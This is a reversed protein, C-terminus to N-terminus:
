ALLKCFVEISASGNGTDIDNMASVTYNGVDEQLLPNFVLSTANVVTIRKNSQIKVGDKYWTFSHPPPNSTFNNINITVDKTNNIGSFHESSNLYIPPDLFILLEM